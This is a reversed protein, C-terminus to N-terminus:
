VYTWSRAVISTLWSAHSDTPIHENREREKKGERRGGGGMGEGGERGGRWGGREGERRGGKGREGREKKGQASM